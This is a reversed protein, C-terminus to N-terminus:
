PKIVTPQFVVPFSVSAGSESPPFRWSRIATSACRQMDGPAAGRLTVDRV